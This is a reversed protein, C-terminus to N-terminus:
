RKWVVVNDPLSELLPLVDEEKLGGLGIGPFNLHFSKDPFREAVRRLQGAANAILDPDAKDKWHRKTQFAALKEGKTPWLVGYVPLRGADYVAEFLSLLRDGWVRDLGPHRRLAEKAIGAGMVLRHDRTLVANTTVLFVDAEGYASWMDGERLVM